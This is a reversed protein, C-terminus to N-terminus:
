VVPIEVESQWIIFRVKILMVLVSTFCRRTWWPLTMFQCDTVASVSLIRPGVRTGQLHYLYGSAQIAGKGTSSFFEIDSGDSISFMYGQSRPDSGRYLVGDLQVAVGTGNVLGVWNVLLYDGEPVYVLGGSACDNFANMIPQGVDTTNDAVAGYDLVNCTKVAAKDTASTTPGVRGTLQAQVIFPMSGLIALIPFSFHM